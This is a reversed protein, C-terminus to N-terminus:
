WSIAVRAVDQQHPEFPDYRLNHMLFLREAHLQTGLSEPAPPPALTLLPGFKGNCSRTLKTVNIQRLLSYSILMTMDKYAAHM